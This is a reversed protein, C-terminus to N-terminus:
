IERERAGHSYLDETVIEDVRRIHCLTESSFCLHSRSKGM